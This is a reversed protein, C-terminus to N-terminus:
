RWYEGAERSLLGSDVLYRRVAVHDTEGGDTFGLLIENVQAESYREGPEFAAALHRLVVERKAAKAPLRRLRGDTVFRDIVTTADSVM